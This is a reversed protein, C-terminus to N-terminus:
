IRTKIKRSSRQQKFPLGPGLLATSHPHFIHIIGTPQAESAVRNEYIYM